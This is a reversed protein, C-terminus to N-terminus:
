ASLADRLLNVLDGLQFPKRIFYEVRRGFTADVTEKGDPRTVIMKM